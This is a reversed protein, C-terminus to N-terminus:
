RELIVDFRYHAAYFEGPMQHFRIRWGCRAALERWEDASRWIGIAATASELEALYDKGQPYFRDARQRDPLNGIYVREVNVFRQHLAILVREAHDAAFYSFSGYCLAKTFRQPDAEAHVYREADMCAFDFAPPEAFHELATAILQRDIDSGFLSSCSDFLYQSLAGNGCAIDCVIDDPRLQLGDVIADVILRIQFESVAVGNVTRKIQRWFDPAVPPRSGRVPSSRTNLDAQM